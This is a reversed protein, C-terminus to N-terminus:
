INATKPVQSHIAIFCYKKYLLVTAIGDIIHGIVSFWLKRIQDHIAFSVIKERYESIAIFFKAVQNFIQSLTLFTLFIRHNLMVHKKM